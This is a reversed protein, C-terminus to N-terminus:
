FRSFEHEFYNFPQTLNPGGNSPPFGKQFKEVELALWIPLQEELREKVAPWPTETLYLWSAGGRGIQEIQREGILTKCVINLIHPDVRQNSPGADSIKQELTRMTAVAHRGIVSLLRKRALAERAKRNEKSSPM